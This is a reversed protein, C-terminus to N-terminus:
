AAPPPNMPGPPAVPARLGALGLAAARTNEETAILLTLVGGAAYFIVFYFLGSIIPLLGAAWLAASPITLKFGLVEQYNGGLILMLGIALGALLCFGAFLRLMFSIFRLFWYRKQM